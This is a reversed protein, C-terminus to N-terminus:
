KSIVLDDDGLVPMKQMKKERRPRMKKLAARESSHRRRWALRSIGPIKWVKGRTTTPTSRFAIENVARRGARFPIEFHGDKRFV